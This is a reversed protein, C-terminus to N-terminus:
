FITGACYIRSKLYKDNIPQIVVGHTSSSHIIQNDGYYIGVHYIKNNKMFFILDGINKDQLNIIKSYNFQENSTRPIKLGVKKYVEQVFGSCDVGYKSEGGWKYPTGIWNNAEEIIKFRIDKKSYKRIEETPKNSLGKKDISKQSSKPKSEENHNNSGFRVTSSCSTLILVIAILILKNKM